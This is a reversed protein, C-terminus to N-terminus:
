ASFNPSNGTRTATRPDTRPDARPDVDARSDTGTDGALGDLRGPGSDYLSRLRSALGAMDLPKPWHAAFGRALAAQSDRPMADATAMVAVTDALGPLRRVAHLVQHGLADPLHGDIVLVDPRWAAALAVASAGDGAVQVSLGPQAALAETFLLASLADDEVYLVRLPQTSAPASVSPAGPPQLPAALAPQAAQPLWVQATTGVGAESRIELQGGHAQVLRQSIVLGLGTGEIGTSERGLREFPQFLRHIQLADMGLGTDQLTLAWGPQGGRDAAVLAWHLAGGPRNYKIANSGLNLLVQRLRQADALVAASGGLDAHRQVGAESAQPGLLANVDCVAAVLDLPALQLAVRGQEVQQLDLVDNILDRLHRGALLIHDVYDQRLAGQQLLQAFGLVAHLPTRMEHSMRSLFETKSQSALEAARQERQREATQRQRTIDSHTGVVRLARGQADRRVAKGRDRLWMYHGAGHRIRYETDYVDSDGDIHRQFAALVAGRDDPHMRRAWDRWDEGIDSDVLGLMDKWRQSFFTRDTAADWDWVADGAGELAFRWRLESEALAAEARKREGIDISLHVVSGDPLRRDIVLAWGDQWQLEQPVPADSVLGVRWAIFDAARGRAAPYHGQAVHHHLAQLWTNCGPPLDRGIRAQWYSNTLLIRGQADSIMVTAPLGELTNELLLRARTAEQRAGLEATIDRSAGRYGLFVGQADFRPDGSISVTVTGQPMDRDVVLDRFPRREAKALLYRDWSAGFEDHRRRNASLTTSGLEDSAPRGTLQAISDTMWVVRGDSDTEWLWDCAVSGARGCREAEQRWHTAAQQTQLLANAAALAAAVAPGAAQQPARLCLALAAPGPGGATGALVTDAQGLGPVAASASAWWVQQAATELRVPETLAQLAAQILDPASAADGDAGGGGPLSPSVAQVM